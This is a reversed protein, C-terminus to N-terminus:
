LIAEKIDTDFPFWHPKKNEYIAMIYGQKWLTNCKTNVKMKYARLQEASYQSLDGYIQSAIIETTTGSPSNNVAELVADILRM